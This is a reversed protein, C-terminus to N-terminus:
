ILNPGSTISPQAQQVCFLEAFGFALDFYLSAFYEIFLDRPPLQGDGHLFRGTM